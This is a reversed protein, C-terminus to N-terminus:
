QYGLFVRPLFLVIDPVYSLLIVIGIAAACFPLVAKAIKSLEIQSINSTVFLTMGVPPTILAIVMMVCFVLGFQLPDMGIATALGLMVPTFILMAATAEMLCGIIVMLILMIAIVLNKDTTVSLIAETVLQPVKGVAMSWGVINGCAIIFMIASSAM